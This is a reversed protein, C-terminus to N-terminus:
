KTHKIKLIGQPLLLRNITSGSAIRRQCELFVGISFGTLIGLAMWMHPRPFSNLFFFPLSLALLSLGILGENRNRLRRCLYYYFILTLIGFLLAGGLDVFNHFGLHVMALAQGMLLFLIILSFWVNKFEITLWGWFVLTAQLHGSPFAFGSGLHPALPIQWLSKLFPNFILTFLLIFLAKSFASRWRTFYGVIIVPIIFYQNAIILFSKAIIDLAHM